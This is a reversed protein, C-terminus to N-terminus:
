MAKQKPPNKPKPKKKGNNKTPSPNSRLVEYKCLLPEVVQCVGGIWKERSIKSIHDRLCM